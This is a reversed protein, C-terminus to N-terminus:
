PCVEVEVVIAVDNAERRFLTEEGTVAVEEPRTM